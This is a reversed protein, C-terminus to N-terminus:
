PEVRHWWSPTALRKRTWFDSAMQKVNASEVAFESCEDSPLSLGTLDSSLIFLAGSGDEAAEAAFPGHPDHRFRPFGEAPCVLKGFEKVANADQLRGIDNVIIVAAPSERLGEAVRYEWERVDEVDGADMDLSTVGCQHPMPVRVQETSTYSLVLEAYSSALQPAPHKWAWEEFLSRAVLEALFTKGSGGPGTLHMAWDSCDSREGELYLDLRQKVIDIAQQQGVYEANILDSFRSIVDKAPVRNPCDSAVPLLQLALLVRLM